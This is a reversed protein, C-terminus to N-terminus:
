IPVPVLAGHFRLNSSYVTTQTSSCLIPGCTNLTLCQYSRRCAWIPSMVRQSNLVNGGNSKVEDSSTSNSLSEKDRSSNRRTSNFSCVWTTFLTWRDVQRQFKPHEHRYIKWLSHHTQIVFEASYFSLQVSHTFTIQPFDRRMLRRQLTKTQMSSFKKSIVSVMDSITVFRMIPISSLNPICEFM